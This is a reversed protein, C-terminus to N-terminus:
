KKKAATTAAGCKCTKGCKCSSGCKCKTNSCTSAAAPKDKETAKKWHNVAM